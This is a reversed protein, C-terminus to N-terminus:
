ADGYKYKIYSAGGGFSLLQASKLSAIYVLAFSILPNIDLVQPCIFKIINIIIVHNIFIYLVFPSMYKTFSFIAGKLNFRLLLTFLLVRTVTSIISDYYVEPLQPFIFNQMINQYIVFFIVSVLTLTFHKKLTIKELNFDVIVGGLIFCNLWTWIRLFIPCNHTIFYGKVITLIEFIFSVFAFILWLIWIKRNKYLYNISKALILISLYVCILAAFYWFHGLPGIQLINNYMYVVFNKISLLNLSHNIILDYLCIVSYTILFFNFCLKLIHFIKKQIYLYNIKSSGIILYGTVMFFLPVSLGCLYWLINYVPMTSSYITHLGIVMICAICKIFDINYDREM